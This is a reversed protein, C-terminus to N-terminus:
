SRSTQDSTSFGLPPVNPMWAFMPHKQQAEEDTGPRPSKPFSVIIAPLGTASSGDSGTALDQDKMARIGVAETPEGKCLLSM